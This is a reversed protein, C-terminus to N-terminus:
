SARAPAKAAAAPPPAAPPEPPEPSEASERAPTVPADAGKMFLPLWLHFRVGEGLKGEAKVAGGHLEFVEKVIKLDAAAGDGGAGSLGGEFLAPLTEEPVGFGHNKVDLRLYREEEAIEVQVRTGREANELAFGLVAGLARELMQRDAAVVDFREPAKFDLGVGKPPRAREAAAFAGRVLSVLDLPALQIGPGGTELNAMVHFGDFVGSLSMAETQITRVWEREEDGLGPAEGILEAYGQISTLINLVRYSVMNLLNTKMADLEKLSTIDSFLCVLGLVAGRGAGGGAAGGGPAGGPGGADKAAGPLRHRVAGVTLRYHRLRGRGAPPRIEIDLGHQGLIVGSFRHVIDKRDLGSLAHILDIVNKGEITTGVNESIAAIRANYLLVRGFMDCIIVGSDIGDLTSYLLNKKELISHAVSELVQFRRALRDTQFLAAIGHGRRRPRNELMERHLLAGLQQAIFRLLDRKQAFYDELGLRRNVVLFGLLRSISIIPVMLSTVALEERMFDRRLVQRHVDTAELYPSRRLDRRRERVDDETAKYGAVFGLRPEGDPDARLLVMSEVELFLAALDLARTWSGSGAAAAGSTASTAAGAKGGGMGAPVKEDEEGAAYFRRDLRSLEEVLRELERDVEATRLAALGLYTLTLALELPVVPFLLGQRFALYGVVPVAALGIALLVLGFAPRVQRWILGFFVAAALVGLATAARGPRRFGRGSLLTDLAQALVEVRPMPTAGTTPTVVGPDVGLETPGVLVLKGRFIEPPLEGAAIAACSLYPIRRGPPGTWNVRLRSGPELPPEPAGEGVAGAREALLRVLSPGDDFDLRVHRVSGVAEVHAIGARPSPPDAVAFLRGGAEREAADVVIRRAVLLDPFREAVGEPPPFSLAVAGAGAAELREVLAGLTAADWPWEGLGGDKKPRLSRADAAAIYVDPAPAIEGRWGFYADRLADELREAPPLLLPVSALLAALAPVGLWSWRKRATM